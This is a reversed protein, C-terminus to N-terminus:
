DLRLVAWLFLPRWPGAWGAGAAWESLSASPETAQSTGVGSRDFGRGAVVCIRGVTRRQTRGTTEEKMRRRTVLASRAEEKPPGQHPAPRV